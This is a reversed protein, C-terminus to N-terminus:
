RSSPLFIGWTGLSRHSDLGIVNACRDSINLLFPAGEDGQSERGYVNEVTHYKNISGLVKLNIQPWLVNSSLKSLLLLSAVGARMVVPLAAKLKVSPPCGM